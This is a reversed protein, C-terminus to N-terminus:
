RENEDDYYSCEECCEKDSGWDKEYEYWYDTKAAEALADLTSKGVSILFEEQTTQSELIDFVWGDSNFRFGALMVTLDLEFVKRYLEISRLALAKTEADYCKCEPDISM